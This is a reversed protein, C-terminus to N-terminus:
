RLRRWEQQTKGLVGERREVAAEAYLRRLAHRTREYHMGSRRAVSSTMAWEDTLVALVKQQLTKRQALFRLDQVPAVLPPAPRIPYSEVFLQGRDPGHASFDILNEYEITEM